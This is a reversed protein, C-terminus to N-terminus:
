IKAKAPKTIKILRNLIDRGPPPRLIHRARGLSGTMGGMRPKNPCTKGPWGRVSVCLKLKIVKSTAIIM